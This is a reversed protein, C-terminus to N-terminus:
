KRNGDGRVTTKNIRASLKQVNMAAVQALTTGEKIQISLLAADQLLENRRRTIDPLFDSLSKDGRLVKKIRGSLGAATTLLRIALGIAIQLHAQRKDVATDRSTQEEKPPTPKFSLDTSSVPAAGIKM